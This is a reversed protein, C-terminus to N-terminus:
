RVAQTMPVTRIYVSDAVRYRVTVNFATVPRDLVTVTTSANPSVEALWPSAQLQRLFTTYAQFDVTQGDISVRVAPGGGGTTDTAPPPGGAQGAVPAGVNGIQQVSTLWTFPPLAKTVQDLIHPWIYRDADIGRIVVIEALLSDRIRESQRKQAIVVDFRRKEAKVGELRSELAALRTTDLVFLAASGGGILVWALVAAILWPDKVNAMIASLDPLAFKFGGGGGGGAKRKQGPLLNINIM